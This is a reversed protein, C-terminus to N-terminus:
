MLLILNNYHLGYDKVKRERMSASLAPGSAGLVDLDLGNIERTLGGFYTGDLLLDRLFHHVARVDGPPCVSVSQEGRFVVVSGVIGDDDVM